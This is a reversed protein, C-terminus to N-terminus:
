SESIQKIFLLNETGRLPKFHFSRTYIITNKISNNDM